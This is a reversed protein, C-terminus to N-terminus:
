TRISGSIPTAGSRTLTSSNVVVIIVNSRDATAKVYAIIDPSDAHVFRLNDYLQLAPNAQRVRNLRAIFAVLMDPTSWDRPRFQYKESDLYEETREGAPTHEMLEYGSYIGWLSSLTSALVARIKFAPRRRERQLYAHLIDPTNPWLHARFYERVDTQVLERMYEALEAKSIKWTFYTYSQTFGVKALARMM